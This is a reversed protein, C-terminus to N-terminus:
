CEIAQQLIAPDNFCPLVSQKTTNPDIFNAIVTTLIKTIWPKVKWEYVVFPNKLIQEATWNYMDSATKVSILYRKPIYKYGAEAQQQWRCYRALQLEIFKKYAEPHQKTYDYDLRILGFRKFDSYPFYNRGFVLDESIDRIFNIYQMARGLYKAAPYSEKPLGLISAM